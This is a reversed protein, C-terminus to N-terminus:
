RDEGGHEDKLSWILTKVMYSYSKDADVMTGFVRKRWLLLDMCPVAYQGASIFSTRKQYVAPKWYLIYATYLARDKKM